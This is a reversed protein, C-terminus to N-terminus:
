PLDSPQIKNFSKDLAFSLQALEVRSNTYTKRFITKVQTNVTDIARGRIEAIEHNSHGEIILKSIENEAESLTFYRNLSESNVKSVRKIDLMQLIQTGMPLVGFEKHQHIPGAEIFITTNYEDLRVSLSEKRPQAGFRGHQSIGEFYDGIYSKLETKKPLMQGERSVRFLGYNEDISKFEANRYIPYGQPSLICIGIEMNEFKDINLSGDSTIGFPRALRLAKSLHPLIQSAATLREESLPNDPSAFQTSFRDIQWSDKNLIAGARYEVGQERLFAVNPRRELVSPEYLDGVGVLEINEGRDSRKAFQIQDEAEYEGFNKLYADVRLPDYNSTMLPAFLTEGYEPIRVLDFLIIGEAGIAEKVLDLSNVWKEGDVVADYVNNIVEYVHGTARMLGMDKNFVLHRM